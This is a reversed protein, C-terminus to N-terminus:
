GDGHRVPPPAPSGGAPPCPLTGSTLRPFDGSGPAAAACAEPFFDKICNDFVCKRTDLPDCGTDTRLTVGPSRAYRQELRALKAAFAADAGRQLAGHEQRVTVVVEAAAGRRTDRSTLRCLEKRLMLGHVVYRQGQGGGAPTVDVTVVRNWESGVLTAHLRLWARRPVTLTHESGGHVAITLQVDERGADSLTGSRGGADRRLASRRAALEGGHGWIDSVLRVPMDSGFSSTVGMSARPDHHAHVPSYSGNSEQRAPWVAEVTPAAASAGRRWCCYAAAALLWPQVVAALVWWGLDSGM